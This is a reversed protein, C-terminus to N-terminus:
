LIYKLNGSDYIEYINNNHCNEIATLSIDFKELINPLKHKQYKERSALNLNEIYFHNPKIIDILNGIKSYVNNKSSFRRDAFTIIDEKFINKAYKLLKNFGGVVTTNLISCSRKLELYKAKSRHSRKFTILQILNNNFYLGYRHPANDKGQIHNDELFKNSEKSSVEKITCKRAFFRNTNLGLKSKLISKVIEKKLIWENEFIHILQINNNECIETKNFHYKKDKFLSSHGYLGNYEIAIGLDPIYIDL